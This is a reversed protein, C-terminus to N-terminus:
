IRILPQLLRSVLGTFRLPADTAILCVCDESTDALPRHKTEHDLEAIDGPGFTGLEDSYSGRLIVTLEIGGHGHHPLGTGPAVRLLRVSGGPATQAKVEIQRVGPALRRWRRDTVPGVYSHLPEPMNWTGAPAAAVAAAPRAARDDLRALARELADDALASQPLGELLTGGVAEVSRAKSRCAGCWALHTAVALALAESLGGAGYAVLLAESPHHNPTRM